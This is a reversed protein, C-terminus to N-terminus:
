HLDLYQTIKIKTSINQGSISSIKRGKWLLDRKLLIDGVAEVTAKAFLLISFTLLLPGAWLFNGLLNQRKILLMVSVSIMLLSPLTGGFQGYGSIAAIVATVELPAQWSSEKLGSRFNRRWGAMFDQLNAYMRVEFLPAGQYILHRGGHRLSINAMPIDEAFFNAVCQHGGIQQYHERELMLYQGIAFVRGPRGREFPATPTLLLVHFPGMLLEWWARCRHFPLTSVLQAEQPVVVEMLRALGDPYHITDADTFLLYKGQSALYGQHCAWQKGNWGAPREPTTVVKVQQYSRAIAETGDSSQDDVVILEVNNYSINILSDLLPGINGAENRCPIM